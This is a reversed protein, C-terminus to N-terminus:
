KAWPNHEPALTTGTDEWSVKSNGAAFTGVVVLNTKGAPLNDVTCTITVTTATTVLASVNSHSGKWKGNGLTNPTTGDVGIEAAAAAGSQGTITAGSSLKLETAIQIPRVLSLCESARAKNSYDNYAPIAVAALVGIITIVIMLEILTFGQQNGMKMETLTSNYVQNKM